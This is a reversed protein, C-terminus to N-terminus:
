SGGVWTVIAYKTGKTVEEAVHRYAYNSPFLVISKAKPKLTFNHDVFNIAGGEYDDNLYAIASIWRGTGPGGDYHADYHDKTEGQYKLLQYHEHDGFRCQFYSAYSNLYENLHLGFENHIKRAVEDGAKAIDTFHLVLNRRLGETKGDLTQAPIFKDPMVTEFISIIDPSNPLADEYVFIAGAKIYTPEKLNKSLLYEM